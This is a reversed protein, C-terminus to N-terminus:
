SRDEALANLAQMTPPLAKRFGPGFMRAFAFAMPGNFTIRHTFATRDVNFSREVRLVAMPLRTEFAYSQVPDFTIVEIASQPGSQPIIVGTSGLRMEGDMSASKLGKDWDGWTSPDTWLSWIQDPTSTPLTFSFDRNTGPAIQDNQAPMTREQQEPTSAACGSLPVFAPAAIMAKLRNM